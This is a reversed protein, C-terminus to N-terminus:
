QENQNRQNRQWHNKAIVDDRPYFRIHVFIKGRRTSKASTSMLRIRLKGWILTPSRPSSPPSDRVTQPRYARQQDVIQFNRQLQAAQPLAARHDDIGNQSRGRIETITFESPAIFVFM